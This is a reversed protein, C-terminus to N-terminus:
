SLYIFRSINSTPLWLFYASPYKSPCSRLPFSGGVRILSHSWLCLCLAKLFPFSTEHKKKWPLFQGHHSLLWSPSRSYLTTFPVQQFNLQGQILLELFKLQGQILLQPFKLRRGVAFVLQYSISERSIIGESCILWGFQINKEMKFNCVHVIDFVLKM